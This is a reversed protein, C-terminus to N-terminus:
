KLKNFKNHKFNWLVKDIVMLKRQKFYKWEKRTLMRPYCDGECSKTAMQLATTKCGCMVCSGDNYCEVRMSAIRSDIQERIHLRIFYKYKSYYLRYRFNGQIYAIINEFNIKAKM